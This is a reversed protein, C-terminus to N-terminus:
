RTGHSAARRRPKGALHQLTRTFVRAIERTTHGIRHAYVVMNGTAGFNATYGGLTTGIAIPADTLIGDGNIRAAYITDNASGNWFLLFGDAHAELEITSYGTGSGVALDLFPSLPTRVVGADSVLLWQIQDGFSGRFGMAVLFTGQNWAVSPRPTAPITPFGIPTVTGSRSLLAGKLFTGERWVALSGDPGSAVAPFENASQEALTLEAATIAGQAPIRAARVTTRLGRMSDGRLFIVVYQTGDWSVAVESDSYIQSAIQVPASDILMGNHAIRSGYLKAADVWVVLWDTGNSAVRPGTPRNVSAHVDIGGLDLANGDANGDAHFRSGVIGLRRENGIYECWVALRLDGATAIDPLSQHRPAVVLPEISQTDLRTVYLDAGAVGLEYGLRANGRVLALTRAGSNAVDLVANKTPPTALETSTSAGLRRMYKTADAGYIVFFGGDFAVDHLYMGEAPITEITGAGSSTVRVARVTGGPIGVATSWAVVVETGSSVARLDFVPTTPPAIVVRAGVTGNADIPTVGVDRPYGNGNPVGGFDAITSVFQFAGNAAVTQPQYGTQASPAIDFTKLLAGNADLLAGRFVTEMPWTVLFRDGNFAVELDFGAWTIPAIEFVDSMTGNREVFRARLVTGGSWVVSWVVLYRNAGFALAVQAEDADTVAIRLVEDGIRKGDSSIRAGHVDGSNNMTRDIWVALFADGDSAISGSSQDFAPVDLTPTTVGKESGAVLTAGAPISLTFLLLLALCSKMFLPM